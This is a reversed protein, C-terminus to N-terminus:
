LYHTFYLFSILSGYFITSLFVLHLFLLNRYQRVTIILNHKENCTIFSVTRLELNHCYKVDRLINLLYRAIKNNDCKVAVVLINVISGNIMKEWIQCLYDMIEVDDDIREAALYLINHLNEKRDDISNGRLLDESHIDMSTLLEIVNLNSYRVAYKIFWNKVRMKEGNQIYDLLDVIFQTNNGV